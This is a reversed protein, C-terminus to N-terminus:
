KRHKFNKIDQVIENYPFDEISGYNKIIEDIVARVEVVQPSEMKLVRQMGLLGGCRIKMLHAHTLEMSEKNIGLIFRTNVKFADDLQLCSEQLDDSRTCTM